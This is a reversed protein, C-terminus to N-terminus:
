GGDRTPHKARVFEATAAEATQALHTIHEFALRRDLAKKAADIALIEVEGDFVIARAAGLALVRAIVLGFRQWVRHVMM